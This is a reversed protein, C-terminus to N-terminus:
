THVKLCDQEVNCIRKPKKTKLDIFALEVKAEFIINEKKYIVQKLTLRAGKLCLITTYVNLVDDLCATSKFNADCRSVVFGIKKDKISAAHNFGVDRLYETRAREIFKLYNVHYVIGATDTDEFYIRLSFIHPEM